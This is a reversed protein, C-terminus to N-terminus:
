AGPELDLPEPDPEEDPEEPESEAPAEPDPPPLKGCARTYCTPYDRCPTWFGAGSCLISDEPAPPLTRLYVCYAGREKPGKLM